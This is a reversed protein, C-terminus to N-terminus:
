VMIHLGNKQMNNMAQCRWSAQFSEKSYVELGFLPTPYKKRRMLIGLTFMKSFNVKILGLLAHEICQIGTVYNVPCAHLTLEHCLLM